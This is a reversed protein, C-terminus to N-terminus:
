RLKIRSAQRLAAVDMSQHQRIVVDVHQPQLWVPPMDRAQADGVLGKDLSEVQGRSCQCTTTPGKFNSRDIGHASLGTRATHCRTRIRVVPETHAHGDLLPKHEGVSSAGRKDAVQPPDHRARM